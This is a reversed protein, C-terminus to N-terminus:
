WNLSFVNIQDQLKKRRDHISSLSKTNFNCWLYFELKKDFLIQKQFIMQRIENKNSDLSSLWKSFDLM